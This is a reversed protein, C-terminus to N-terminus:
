KHISQDGIHKVASEIVKARREQEAAFRIQNQRILVQEKNMSKLIENSQTNAQEIFKLSTVIQTQLEVQKVAQRTWEKIAERNDNAIKRTEIDFEKNQDLKDPITFITWVAAGGGMISGTLVSVGVAWILGKITKQNDSMLRGKHM